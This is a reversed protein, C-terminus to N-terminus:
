AVNTDRHEVSNQSSLFSRQTLSRLPAAWSVTRRAVMTKGDVIRRTTRVHEKYAEKPTITPPPPKDVSIEAVQSRRSFSSASHVSESSSAQVRFSQESSDLSSKTAVQRHTTPPRRRRVMEKDPRNIQPRETAIRTSTENEERTQSLSMPRQATPPKPYTRTANSTRTKVAGRSGKTYVQIPPQMTPNRTSSSSAAARTPQTM